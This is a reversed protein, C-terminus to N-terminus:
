TVEGFQKPFERVMLHHPIDGKGAVQKFFFAGGARAVADRTDAAWDLDMPRYHRGSEGGMIIWSVPLLKMTPMNPMEVAQGASWEWDDGERRARGRLADIIIAASGVRRVEIWTLDIPELAPEYSLGLVAPPQIYTLSEYMHRLRTGANQQDEVSLLICIRGCIENWFHPILKRFNIPRKTVLIFILNKCERVLQWFEHHMAGISTHIDFIDSLSNIFVRRRRGLDPDIGGNKKARADWKRIDNWGQKIRIRQGKPGWETNKFRTGETGFMNEAYCHDCGDSVKTCGRWLNATSDCWEIKTQEGM